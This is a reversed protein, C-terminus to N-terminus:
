QNRLSPNIPGHVLPRYGEPALAMAYLPDASALTKQYGGSADTAVTEILEGSAAHYLRVQTSLPQGDLNVLGRIEYAFSEQYLEAIQSATLAQKYIRLNDIMGDLQYQADISNRGIFLDSSSSVISGAPASTYFDGNIYINIATPTRTIAVHFWQNLPVIYDSVFRNGAGGFDFTLKNNDSRSSFCFFGENFANRKSLFATALATYSQVLAFFSFTVNGTHFEANHAIKAYQGQGTLSLANGILGSAVDGGVVAAHNVGNESSSVGGNLEDFTLWTLLDPHAPDLISIESM